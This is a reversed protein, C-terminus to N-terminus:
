GALRALARALEHDVVVVETDGRMVAIEGAALDRVYAVLAGTAAVTSGVADQAAASTGAFPTTASGSGLATIAGAGAVAGAAGALFTRRSGGGADHVDHTVLETM